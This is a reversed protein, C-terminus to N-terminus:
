TPMEGTSTPPTKKEAVTPVVFVWGSVPVVESVRVFVTGNSTAVNFLSSGELTASHSQSESPVHQDVEPPQAQPLTTSPNFFVALGTVLAFYAKWVNRAIWRLDLKLGTYEELPNM